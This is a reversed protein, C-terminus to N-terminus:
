LSRTFMIICAFTLAVAGIYPLYQMIFNMIPYQVAISGFYEVGEGAVIEGYANTMQMGVFVLVFIGAINIAYFIPHSPIIFSAILMGAIFIIVMGLVAYDYVAFNNEMIDVTKQATPTIYGSSDMESIINNYVYRGIFITLIVTFVTIFLVVVQGIQGKKSKKVM